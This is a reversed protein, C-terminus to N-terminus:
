NRSSAGGRMKEKIQHRLNNLLINNCKNQMSGETKQFSRRVFHFVEKLEEEKRNQNHDQEIFQLHKKGGYSNYLM